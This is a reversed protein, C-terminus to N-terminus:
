EETRDDIDMPAEIGARAALPWSQMTEISQSRAIVYGGIVGFALQSAVFWRWDIRANLAPNVVDLTSAILGSWLIPVLWGAWLWARKPFMPLMVAYLVGVLISTFLHVVTGLVLALANFQRLQEVSATAMDPLAAAALLNIPYWVSGQSILGFLIAVVAMAAAGVLGGKVGSSYPKIEAPIHVRHGEQGLRLREVRRSTAHLIADPARELPVEEEHEHPLVERWWGVAAFVLLIGGVLSLYGSTVLGSFIMAVAAALVM